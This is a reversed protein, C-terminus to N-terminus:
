PADFARQFVAFDFLDIDGDFEADFVACAEDPQATDPGILCDDGFAAFDDLDVIRDCTYDGMGFEYAGMDVRECLVRAHGDLDTQGDAPVFDPDGANICDSASQLRFNDDSTGPLDDPGDADVFLPDTDLNGEGPWGGQVDCYSVVATGGTLDIENPSNNWLITGRVFATGSECRIAGGTGSAVNGAITCNTITPFSGSRLMFAGGHYATVNDTITCGTFTPSGELCYM